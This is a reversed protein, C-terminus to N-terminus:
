RLYPLQTGYCQTHKKSIPFIHQMKHFKSDDRTRKEVDDFTIFRNITQFRTRPMTLTVYEFYHMSDPCWIESIDVNRKKTVGLIILIGMYSLLEDNTIEPVDDPLRKNSCECIHTVM